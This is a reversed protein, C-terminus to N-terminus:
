IFDVNNFGHAFDRAEAKFLGLVENLGSGLRDFLADVLFLGLGDLFFESLGSCCNFYFSTAGPHAETRTRGLSRRKRVKTNLHPPSSDKKLKFFPLGPTGPQMRMTLTRM